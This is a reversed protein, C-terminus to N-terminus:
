QWRWNSVITSVLEELLSVRDSTGTAVVAAAFDDNQWYVGIEYNGSHSEIVISNPPAYDRTSRVYDKSNALRSKVASLEAISAQSESITIGVQADVRPEVASYLYQGFIPGSNRENKNLLRVKDPILSSAHQADFHSLVAQASEVTTRPSEPSKIKTVRPSYAWWALIGGGILVALTTITVRRRM